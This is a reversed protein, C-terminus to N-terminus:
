YRDAAMLEQEQYGSEVQFPSETNSSISAVPKQKIKSNGEHTGRKMSYESKSHDTSRQWYDVYPCISRVLEPKGREQSMEKGLCSVWQARRQHFNEKEASPSGEELDWYQPHPPRPSTASKVPLAM